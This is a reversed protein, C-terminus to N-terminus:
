CHMYCKGDAATDVDLVRAAPSKSQDGITIIDGTIGFNGEVETEIEGDESNDMEELQVNLDSPCRQQKHNPQETHGSRKEMTRKSSEKITNNALPAAYQILSTETRTLALVTTKSRMVEAWFYQAKDIKWREFEAALTIQRAMSFIRNCTITHGYDKHATRKDTYQFYTFFDAPNLTAKHALLYNYVSDSFWPENNKSGTQPSTCASTSSM